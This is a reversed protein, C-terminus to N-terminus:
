DFGFESLLGSSFLEELAQATILSNNSVIISNIDEFKRLELIDQYFVKNIIHCIRFYITTDIEDIVLLQFARGILRAKQIVDVKDVILLIQMGINEEEEKDNFRKMFHEIEKRSVNRCGDLFAVIKKM